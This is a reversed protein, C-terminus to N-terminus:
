GSDLWLRGFRSGIRGTNTGKLIEDLFFFIEEGVEIRDIAVIKIRSINRM